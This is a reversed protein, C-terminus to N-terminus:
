LSVFKNSVVNIRFTENYVPNISEWKYVFINLSVNPIEDKLDSVLYIDLFGDSRLDGTIIVPAFFNKAYYHQM